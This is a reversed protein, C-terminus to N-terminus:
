VSTEGAPVAMATVAEGRLGSSNSDRNNNASEATNVREHIQLAFRLRVARAFCQAWACIIIMAIIAAQMSVTSIMDENLPVDGPKNPDDSDGSDESGKAAAEAEGDAEQEARMRRRKRGRQKRTGSSDNGMGVSGM